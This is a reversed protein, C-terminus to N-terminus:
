PASSRFCSTGAAPSTEGRARGRDCRVGRRARADDRVATRTGHRGGRRGAGAHQIAAAAARGPRARGALRVCARSDPRDLDSGSRAHVAGPRRLASPRDVVAGLRRIGVRRVRRADVAIAPEAAPLHSVGGREQDDMAGAGRRIGAVARLRVGARTAVMRSHRSRCTGGMALVHGPAPRRRGRCVARERAAGTDHRRRHSGRGGVVHTVQAAVVAPRRRIRRRWRGSARRAVGAAAGARRASDRADRHPGDDRLDGRVPVRGGAGPGRAGRAQPSPPEVLAAGVGDGDGRSPRVDDHRPM